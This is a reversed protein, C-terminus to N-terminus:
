ASSEKNRGRIQNYQSQSQSQQSLPLMLWPLQPPLHHPIKPVSIRWTHCVAQFRLYDTYITLNKSVTELIDRPLQTWDVAMEIERSNMNKWSNRNESDIGRLLQYQGWFLGPIAYWCNIPFVSFNELWRNMAVDDYFYTDIVGHGECINITQTCKKKQRIGIYPGKGRLQTGLGIMKWHGTIISLRISVEFLGM